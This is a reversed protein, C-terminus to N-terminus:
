SNHRMICALVKTSHGLTDLASGRDNLTHKEFTRGLATKQQGEQKNLFFTPYTQENPSM